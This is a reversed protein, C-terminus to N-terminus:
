NYKFLEIFKNTKSLIRLTFFTFSLIHIDKNPYLKSKLTNSDSIYLNNLGEINPHTEGSIDWISLGNITNTKINRGLIFIDKPINDNKFYVYYSFLTQCDYRLILNNKKIDEFINILKKYTNINIKWFNGQIYKHYPLIYSQDNEFIYSDKSSYGGNEIFVNDYQDMYSLDSYIITDLDVWIYDKNTNYYLDKYISLKNFSMNLWLGSGTNKNYISLSNDNYYKEFKVNFDKFRQFNVKYNIFCILEYKPIFKKMSSLLMYLADELDNTSIRNINNCFTFFYM